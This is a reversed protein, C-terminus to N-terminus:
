TYFAQEYIKDSLTLCEYLSPVEESVQRGLVSDM